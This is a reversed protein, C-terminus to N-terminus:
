KQKLQIHLFLDVNEEHWKDTANLIHGNRFKEFALLLDRQQIVVQDKLMKAGDVYAKEIEYTNKQINNEEIYEQAKKRIEKNIM